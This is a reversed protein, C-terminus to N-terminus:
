EVQNICFSGEALFGNSHLFKYLNTAKTNLKLVRKVNKKLKLVLLPWIPTLFDIIELFVFVVLNWARHFVQYM